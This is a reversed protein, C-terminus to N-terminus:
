NEIGIKFLREDSYSQVHPLKTIEEFSLYMSGIANKNDSIFVRISVLKPDLFSPFILNKFTAVNDTKDFEYYGSYADYLKSPFIVRYHEDDDMKYVIGLDGSNNDITRSLQVIIDNNLTSFKQYINKKFNLRSNQGPGIIDIKLPYAPCEAKLIWGKEKVESVWESKQIWENKRATTQWDPTLFYVFLGSITAAFIPVIVNILAEKLTM